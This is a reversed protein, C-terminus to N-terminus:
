SKYNKTLGNSDAQPRNDRSRGELGTANTGHAPKLPNKSLSLGDLEFDM